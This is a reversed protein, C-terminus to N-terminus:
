KKEVIKELLLAVAGYGLPIDLALHKEPNRDQAIELQEDCSEIFLVRLAVCQELIVM